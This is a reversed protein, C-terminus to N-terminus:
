MGSGPGYTIEVRRNQAERVGDATPVRPQSEGFAQSTISQGPVGRSALYSQVASNRREALGANYQTSGARDTHGALMVRANGCNAYATAANNLISAAEPTIDSRDFDFFVIYPGTNCVAQPPPPPAQVPPPPPPPTYTQVPAPAPAPAPEPESRGGFNFILSALVSHASYDASVDAGNTAQLRFDDVNFYRYKVGLDLNRTVPLRVGGILQWAFDSKSDDILTGVGTVEVPLKLKAYGAGGGGYIQFGDDPGIEFLANVMGSWIELDRENEVVTGSPVTTGTPLLANNFVALGRYKNNKYGGEAELRFPGFDYGLIIDGDVGVKTRGTATRTFADDGTSEAPRAAIKVQDKLSVGGEIGIYPGDAQAPAAIAIAAAGAMLITTNRM